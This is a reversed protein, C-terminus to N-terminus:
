CLARIDNIFNVASSMGLRKAMMMPIVPSRLHTLSILICRDSEGDVSRIINLGLLMESLIVKPDEVAEVDEAHAIARSVVVYGGQDGGGPLEEM